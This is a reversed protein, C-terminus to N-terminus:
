EMGIMRTKLSVSSIKTEYERSSSMLDLSFLQKPTGRPSDSPCPVGASCQQGILKVHKGWTVFYNPSTMVFPLNTLFLKDSLALHRTGHCLSPSNYMGANGKAKFQIKLSIENNIFFLLSVTRQTNTIIRIRLSLSHMCIATIGTVFCSKTENSGNTWWTPPCEEM